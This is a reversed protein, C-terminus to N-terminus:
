FFEDFFIGLIALVGVLGVAMCVFSGLTSGWLSCLMASVQTMGIAIIISTLLKTFKQEKNSFFSFGLLGGVVCVVPILPLM